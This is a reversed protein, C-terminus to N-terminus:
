SNFKIHRLKGDFNIVYLLSEINTENEHSVKLGQASMLADLLKRQDSFLGKIERTVLCGSSTALAFKPSLVNFSPRGTGHIRLLSRGLIHSLSAEKFWNLQFHSKPLFSEALDDIYEIKLRRFKGFELVHNAEPMVGKIQFVGTPTRGNSYRFDLGRTSNGFITLKFVKGNKDKYFSGDSKRILLTGTQHRSNGFIAFITLKKNNFSLLEEVESVKLSSTQLASQYFRYHIPYHNKLDMLFENPLVSEFTFLRYIEKKSLDKLSLKNLFSILSHNLFHFTLLDELTPAPDQKKLVEFSQSGWNLDQPLRYSQGKKNGFVFSLYDRTFSM